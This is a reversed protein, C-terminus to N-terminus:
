TWGRSTARFLSNFHSIRLSFLRIAWDSHPLHTTLPESLGRLAPYIEVKEGDFVYVGFSFLVKEYSGHAL